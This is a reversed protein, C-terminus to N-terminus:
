KKGSMQGQSYFKVCVKKHAMIKICDFPRHWGKSQLDKTTYMKFLIKIRLGGYAEPNGLNLLRYERTEV